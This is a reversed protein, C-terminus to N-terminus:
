ALHDYESGGSPLLIAGLAALGIGIPPVVNLAALGAGFLGYARLYPGVERCRQAVQAGGLPYNTTCKYPCVKPGTTLILWQRLCAEHIAMAKQCAETCGPRRANDEWLMDNHCVICEARSTM